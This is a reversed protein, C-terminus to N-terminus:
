QGAPDPSREAVPDGVPEAVAVLLLDGLHPRQRAIGLDQRAALREHFFPAHGRDEDAPEEPRQPGRHREGGANEFHGVPRELDGIEDRRQDPRGGQQQDAVHHALEGFPQPPHRLPLSSYASSPPTKGVYTSWLMKASGDGQRRRAIASDSTTEAAILSVALLPLIGRVANM